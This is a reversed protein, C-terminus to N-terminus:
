ILKHEDDLKDPHELYIYIHIHICIYTHAYETKTQLKLHRPFQELISFKYCTIIIKHWYSKVSQQERSMCNISNNYRLDRGTKAGNSNIKSRYSRSM